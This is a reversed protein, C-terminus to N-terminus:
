SILLDHQLFRSMLGLSYGIQTLAAVDPHVDPRLHFYGSPVFYLYIEDLENLVSSLATLHASHRSKTPINLDALINLHIKEVHDYWDNLKTEINSM